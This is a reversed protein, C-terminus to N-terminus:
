RSEPLLRPRGVQRKGLQVRDVLDDHKVLVGRARLELTMDHVADASPLRRGRGRRHTLGEVGCMRHFGDRALGRLQTMVERRPQVGPLEADRDTRAAVARHEDFVDVESVDLREAWGGM